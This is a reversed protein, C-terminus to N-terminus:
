AIDKRHKNELKIKENWTAPNTDDPILSKMIEAYHSAKRTMYVVREKAEKLQREAAAKYQLILKYRERITDDGQLCLEVYSKIDKLSMGCAKLYNVGTFWNISEKNFLRNNNKDRQVNPILGKDTYYRVTHESMALIRSIEKVTYM